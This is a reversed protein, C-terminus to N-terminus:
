DLTVYRARQRTAADILGDFHSVAPDAAAKGAAADAADPDSWVTVIIWGGDATESRATTRRLLGPQRYAFETQVRRDAALFDAESADDSLRFTVTEIAGM